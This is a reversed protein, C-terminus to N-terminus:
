FLTGLGWLAIISIILQFFLSSIGLM